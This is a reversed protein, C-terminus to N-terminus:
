FGRMGHGIMQNLKDRILRGYRTINLLFLVVFIKLVGELTFLKKALTKLKM